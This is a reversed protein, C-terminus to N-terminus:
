AARDRWVTDPRGMREPRQRRRTGRDVCGVPDRSSTTPQRLWHPQQPGHPRRPGQAQRRRCPARPCQLGHPRQLTHIRPIHPLRLGCPTPTCVKAILGVRTFTMEQAPLRSAFTGKWTNRRFLMPRTTTACPSQDLQPKSSIRNSSSPSNSRMRQCTDTIFDFTTPSTNLMKAESPTNHVQASQVQVHFTLYLAIRSEDVLEKIQFRASCTSQFGGPFTNM